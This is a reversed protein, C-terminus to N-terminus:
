VSRRSLDNGRFFQISNGSFSKAQTMAQDAQSILTQADNAYEPLHSAGVSVSVTLEHDDILYVESLANTLEEALTKLYVVDVNNDLILTFQDNAFRAVFSEYGGVSLLRKSIKRLLKDGTTHGLAANVLRFRDINVMLVGVRPTSTNTLIRDLEILM